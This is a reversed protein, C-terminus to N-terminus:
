APAPKRRTCDLWRGTRAAPRGDRPRRKERTGEQMHLRFVADAAAAISISESNLSPRYELSSSEHPRQTSSASILLSTTASQVLACGPCRYGTTSGQRCAVTSLVAASWQARRAGHWRTRHDPPVDARRPAAPPRHKQGIAGSSGADPQYRGVQAARPHPWRPDIPGVRQWGGLGRENGTSDATCSAPAAGSAGAPHRGASGAAAKVPAGGAYDGWAVTVRHRRLRHGGRRGDPRHAAQARDTRGNRNTGSLCGSLATCNSPGIRRTRDRCAVVKWPRASPRPCRRRGAPSGAPRPRPRCSSVAARSPLLVAGSIGAPTALVAIAFAIALAVVV